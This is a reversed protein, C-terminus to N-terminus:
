HGRFLPSYDRRVCGRRGMESVPFQGTSVTAPQLTKFGSQHQCLEQLHYPTLKSAQNYVDIRSVTTRDMVRGNSSGFVAIMRPTHCGIDRYATEGRFLNPILALYVLSLPNDTAQSVVGTKGM